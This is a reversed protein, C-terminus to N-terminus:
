ITYEKMGTVRSCCVCMSNEHMSPFCVTKKAQIKTLQFGCRFLNCKQWIVTTRHLLYTSRLTVWGKLQLASISGKMESVNQTHCCPEQYM